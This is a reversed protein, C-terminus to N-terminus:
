DEEEEEPLNGEYEAFSMLEDVDRMRDPKMRFIWGDGYPDDNIIEPKTALRANVATVTGAVPARVDSATKLSELMGIDENQEYHDDDPEPLEVHIVDSIRQQAFDTIGVVIERGEARVWEHNSTFRCDLPERM